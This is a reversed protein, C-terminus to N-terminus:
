RFMRKLEPRLHRNELIMEKVFQSTFPMVRKFRDVVLDQLIPVKEMLDVLHFASQTREIIKRGLDILVKEPMILMKNAGRKQNERLRFGFLLANFLIDPDNVDASTTIYVLVSQTEHSNKADMLRGIYDDM